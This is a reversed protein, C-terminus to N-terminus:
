MDKKFNKLLEAVSLAENNEDRRRRGHKEEPPPVPTHEVKAEVTPAQWQVATFATTDFRKIPNPTDDVDLDSAWSYEPEPTHETGLTSSDSSTSSTASTTSHSSVSNSDSAPDSTSSTGMSDSYSADSYDNSSGYGSSSYSNDEYNNDSYSSAYSTDSYSSDRLADGFSGSSSYSNTSSDSDGVSSSGSSSFSSGSIEPIEDIRRASARLAAPEYEFVRGSIEELQNRMAKIQDRIEELRNDEEKLLTKRFTQELRLEQERHAAKELELEAAHLEYQEDLLQKQREYKRRYLHVLFFGGLAAWLAAIVALKMVNTSNTFMMAITALFALVVLVAPLLQFISSRDPREKNDVSM